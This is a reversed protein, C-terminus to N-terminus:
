QLQEGYSKLKRRLTNLGIGLIRATQAKNRGTLHYVKVIHHREIETLALPPITEAIQGPEGRDKNLPSPLHDPLIPNSGALNLAGQIIYKLERVNGPFNYDLLRSM